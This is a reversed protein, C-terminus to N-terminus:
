TDLPVAWISASRERARVDHSRVRRSSSAGRARSITATPTATPSPETSYVVNPLGAQARRERVTIAVSSPVSFTHGGEVEVTTSAGGTPVTIRQFPFFSLPATPVTPTPVAGEAALAPSATILFACRASSTTLVALWRCFGTCAPVLGPRLRLYNM